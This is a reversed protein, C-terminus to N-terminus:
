FNIHVAGASRLLAITDLLESASSGVQVVGSLTYWGPKVNGALESSSIQFESGSALSKLQSCTRQVADVSESQIYATLLSRNRAHMRADILELMVSVLRLAKEHRRLLHANAILCAQSRLVVGDEL